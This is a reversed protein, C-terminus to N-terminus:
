SIIGDQDVGAAKQLLATKEMQKARGTPRRVAPCVRVAASM